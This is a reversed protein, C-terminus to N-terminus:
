KKKSLARLIMKGKWDNRDPDLKHLPRSCVFYETGKVQKNYSVGIPKELHEKRYRLYNRITEHNLYVNYKEKVKNSIKRFGMQSNDILDDVYARLGKYEKKLDLRLIKLVMIIERVILCRPIIFKNKM